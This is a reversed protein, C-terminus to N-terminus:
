GDLYELLEEVLMDVTTCPNMKSPPLNCAYTGRLKKSNKIALSLGEGTSLIDFINEINKEYKGGNINRTEFIKDLKQYYDNRHIAGVLTILM